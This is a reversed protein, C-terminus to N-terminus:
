RSLRATPWGDGLRADLVDAIRDAQAYALQAGPDRWLAPTPRALTVGVEPVSPGRGDLLADEFAALQARQAVQRARAARAIAALAPDAGIVDRVFAAREVHRAIWTATGEDDARSPRSASALGVLAHGVEHLAESWRALSAGGRVVVRVDRGPEVVFTRAEAGIAFRAAGRDIAVGHLEGLVNAIRALSRPDIAPMVDDRYGAVSPPVAAGEFRDRVGAAERVIAALAGRAAAARASTLARLGDWSPAAARAVIVRADAEVAAIRCMARYATARPDDSREFIARVRADALSPAIPPPTGQEAWARTHAALEAEVRAIALELDM